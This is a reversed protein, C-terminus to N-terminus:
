CYSGSCRKKGDLGPKTGKCVQVAYGNAYASPYVDFKAKAASKGRACLKTGTKKRGEEIMDDDDDHNGEGNMENMIFDFVQDMNNKAEAIHDQAWDHGHELISEIEEKDMDLLMECQRKMQELNSFFMYRSSEHEERIVKRIIRDLNMINHTYDTQEV